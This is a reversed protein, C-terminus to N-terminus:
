TEKLIFNVKNKKNKAEEIMSLSKNKILNLWNKSVEQNDSPYGLAAFKNRTSMVIEYIILSRARQM